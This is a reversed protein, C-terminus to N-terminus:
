PNRARYDDRWAKAAKVRELAREHAAIHKDYDIDPPYYGGAEDKAEPIWELWQDLLFLIADLNINWADDEELMTYVNMLYRVTIEGATFSITMQPSKDFM